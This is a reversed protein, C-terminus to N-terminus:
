KPSVYKLPNQPEGNVRIIFDLHSGTSWGSSDAKAIPDGKKVVDGVKSLYALLHSYQTSIGGGHNVIVCRGYGGNNGAYIVKGAESARVITGMPVPIDIAPHFRSVKFIPHIRNGFQSSIRTYGPVPWGMKGSGMYAEPHSAQWDRIFKDLSKRVEELDDISRIYEEKQEQISNLLISKQRSQLKVQSQKYETQQVMSNYNDVQEQFEAEKGKLFQREKELEELMGADSEAIRELFDFRTLFDTLSTSNLLVEMLNVNGHKYMYNLRNSLYDTRKEINAMTKKIENQTVDLLGQTNGIHVKLVAVDNELTDINNELEKIQALVKKEEKAKQNYLGEYKSIAKNIDQLEKIKKDFETIAYLPGVFALVLVIEFIVIKFFLDKNRSVRNGEKWTVM